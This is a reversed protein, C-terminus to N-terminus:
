AVSLHLASRTHPGAAAAAERFTQPKVAWVVLTAGALAPGAQADAKVGLDRELRERAEDWPEVVQVASAPLGQKLLGGLIATAMNGGGVFAIRTNRPVM